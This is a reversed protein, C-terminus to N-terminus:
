PLYRKPDVPQGDKRIEFHLLPQDTGTKGMEAIRQGAQVRDGEKVLRRRNHGYASLLHQDHKIIILEGYGILGVGSYVVEGPAAALIDQGLQGEIDLGKASPDNAAFSKVVQGKAPWRWSLASTSVTSRRPTPRSVPPAKQAPPTTSPKPKVAVPQSSQTTAPSKGSQSRRPGSLRIKQGPFITFPPGLGNWTGLMKHDLGYRWAISYLTDGKRVVYNSPRRTHTSSVTKRQYAKANASRDHIPAPSRRSCAALLSLALLVMLLTKAHQISM